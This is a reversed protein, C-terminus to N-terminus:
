ECIQDVLTLTDNVLHVYEPKLYALPQTLLKEPMYAWWSFFALSLCMSLGLTIKRKFAWLRLFTPRTKELRQEEIRKFRRMKMDWDLLNKQASMAFIKKHKLEGREEARGSNIVFPNERM